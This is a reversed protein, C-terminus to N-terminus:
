RRLLEPLHGIRTSMYFLVMSLAQLMVGAFILAYDRILPFVHHEKM